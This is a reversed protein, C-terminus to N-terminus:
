STFGDPADNSAEAQVNQVAPAATTTRKTSTRASRRRPAAKADEPPALRALDRPDLGAALAQEYHKAWVAKHEALEEMLATARSAAEALLRVSDVKAQIKERERRELDAVVDDVDFSRAVTM